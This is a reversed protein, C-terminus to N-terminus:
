SGCVRTFTLSCCITNMKTVLACCILTFITTLRFNMDDAENCEHVFTNTCKM